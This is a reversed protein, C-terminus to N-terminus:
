LEARPAIKTEGQNALTSDWELVVARLDESWFSQKVDIMSQIFGYSEGGASLNGRGVLFIWACVDPKTHWM